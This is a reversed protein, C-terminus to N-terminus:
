LLIGPLELLSHITKFKTSKRIDLKNLWIVKFKNGVLYECVSEKDDVVIAEKPIKSISKPNTKHDFIFILNKDLLDSIGMSDFKYNQFRKTGESYIGLRYKDKLKEIVEYTENFVSNKYWNRFKQGYYIELIKNKDNFDLSKCLFTAFNEPDFEIKDSLSFTYDNKAAKIEELSSNKFVEKLGSEFYSSLKTTDLITRDIDFLLIGKSKM